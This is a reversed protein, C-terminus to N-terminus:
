RPVALSQVQWQGEASKGFCARYGAPSYLYAIPIYGDVGAQTRVKTWENGRELVQVIEYSVTAVVRATASRTARVKVNPNLVVQDKSRELDAPFQVSVYPACYQEGKMVGPMSLIQTLVGYVSSDEEGLGWATYFAGSGYMDRIGLDIEPSVMALLANRDKRKLVDKLRTLFAALAKDKSIEDKPPPLTRTASPAPVEPAPTAPKAKAAAKPAPPKSKTSQASALSATIFVVALARKWM